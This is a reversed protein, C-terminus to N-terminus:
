DVTRLRVRLWNQLERDRRVQSHIHALGDVLQATFAAIEDDGLFVDIGYYM